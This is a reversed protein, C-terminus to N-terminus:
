KKLRFVRAECPTFSANFLRNGPLQLKLRANKYLCNVVVLLHYSGCDRVAAQFGAPEKVPVAPHTHFEAMLEDLETGTTSIM